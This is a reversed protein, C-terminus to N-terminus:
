KCKIIGAPFYYRWGSSRAGKSLTNCHGLRREDSCDRSSQDKSEYESEHRVAKADLRKNSIQQRPDYDSGECGAKYRVLIQHNFKGLDANNQQHESHSQM